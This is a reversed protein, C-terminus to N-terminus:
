EGKRYVIIGRESVNDGNEEATKLLSLLKGSEIDEPTVGIVMINTEKGYAYFGYKKFICDNARFAEHAQTLVTAVYELSFDESKIQITVEPDIQVAKDFKMDLELIEAYSESSDKGQIVFTTNSEYGLEDAIINKAILSYESILRNITNFKEVVYIQYDDRKVEGNYYYISFRTDVSTKSKAYVRYGGTKFDYNAGDLELDLFAYNRGVYEEIAKNAMMSSLPNGVFANTIFLIGSILLIATVGALIKLVKRSKTNNMNKMNKM